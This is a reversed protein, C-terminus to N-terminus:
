QFGNEFFVKRLRGMGFPLGMLINNPLKVENRFGTVLRMQTVGFARSVGLGDNLM